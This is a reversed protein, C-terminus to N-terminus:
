FFFVNLRSINTMQISSVFIKNEYCAKERASKGYRKLESFNLNSKQWPKTEGQENPPSQHNNQNNQQNKNNAQGAPYGWAALGANNKASTQYNPPPEHFSPPIPVEDDHEVEMPAEGKEEMENLPITKPRYTYSQPPMSINPPPPAEGISIDPPPPATPMDNDTPYTEKMHIWQQALAAWDVKELDIHQYAAQSPWQSEDGIPNNLHSSADVPKFSSKFPHM